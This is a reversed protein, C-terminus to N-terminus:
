RKWRAPPKCGPEYAPFANAARSVDKRKRLQIGMKELNRATNYYVALITDPTNQNARVFTTATTEWGTVDGFGTGIEQSVPSSAYVGYIANSAVTQTANDLNVRRMSTTNSTGLSANTTTNSGAIDLARDPMSNGLGVSGIGGINLSASNIMGNQYESYDTVSVGVGPSISNYMITSTSPWTGSLPAQGTGAVNWQNWGTNYNVIPKIYESFVMAGIVGTNSTSGGISNVYSDDNRSFFFEAAEKDNLKWGPISVTSNADVVYGESDPGAPKGKLVDLGDVSVIFLARHNTNNSIDITYSNGNRGEIWISGQHYYEDAAKRGLPRVRLEYRRQSDLM